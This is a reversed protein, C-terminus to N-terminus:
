SLYFILLLLSLFPLYYSLALIFLLLSLPNIIPSLYSSYYSLSLIFLLIYFSPHIIPSLFSSYFFFSLIFILLSSPHIISCLFSSYLFILHVRILYFISFSHILLTPYFNIIRFTDFICHM